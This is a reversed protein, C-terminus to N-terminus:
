SSGQRLAAFHAMLDSTVKSAGIAVVMAGSTFDHVTSHPLCISHRVALYPGLRAVGLATLEGIATMAVLAETPGWNESMLLGAVEGWVNGKNAILLSQTAGQVTVDVSCATESSRRFNSYMDRGSAIEFLEVTAAWNRAGQAM